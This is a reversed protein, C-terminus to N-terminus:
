LSKLSKVETPRDIEFRDMLAVATFEVAAPMGAVFLEM